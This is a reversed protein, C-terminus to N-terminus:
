VCLKLAVHLYGLRGGSLEEVRKRTDKIKDSEVLSRARSYSSPRKIVERIKQEDGLEQVKLTLDRDLRGNLVETLDMKLSVDLGNIQMIIEGVKLQSKEESAPGDSSVTM